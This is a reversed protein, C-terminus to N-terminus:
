WFSNAVEQVLALRKKINLDERFPGAPIRSKARGLLIDNPSLYEGEEPTTPKQGIPLENLLNACEFFVTQLENLTLIQKGIAHTLAKKASKILAEACGNQWPADPACCKWMLGDEAGFAKVKSGDIGKIVERLEKSAAKLQSGNDSYINAPYGRLSVFRRLVMLFADQSYGTAVDIYVARTVLCNFLVGYVKGKTRKNVTGKIDYPRFLDISISHWPPASKIREM